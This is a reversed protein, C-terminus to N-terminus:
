EKTNEYMIKDGTTLQGTHLFLVGSQAAEMPNQLNVQRYVATLVEGLNPTKYGQNVM